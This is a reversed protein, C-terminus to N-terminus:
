KMEGSPSSTAPKDKFNQIRISKVVHDPSLAIRLKVSIGATVEIEKNWRLKGAPHVVEIAYKGPPIHQLRFRGDAETVQFHPHDFVYVWSRMASHYVCGVQMPRRIGGPTKFTEFHEGGAPMNVNFQNGPDFVFVNHVVADSNKFKVRDGARIAITEPIFRFDKQDMVATIPDHKEGGGGPEGGNLSVVAEALEGTKRDKVYYRAYRWPRRDEAQYTIVGEVTGKARNVAENTLRDEGLAPSGGAVALYLGVCLSIATIDKLTIMHM